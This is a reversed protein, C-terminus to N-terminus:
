IPYVRKKLVQRIKEQDDYFLNSGGLLCYLVVGLSWLDREPCAAVCTNEPLPVSPIQERHIRAM